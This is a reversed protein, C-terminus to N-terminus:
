EHDNEEDEKKFMEKALLLLAFVCGVVIGVLLLALTWNHHNTNYHDLWIGVFIGILAPVIVSWGVLGFLRFGSWANVEKNRRAKLKRAEKKIAQHRFNKKPPQKEDM